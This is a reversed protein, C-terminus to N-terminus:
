VSRSALGESGHRGDDKIAKRNFTRVPGNPVLVGRVDQEGLELVCPLPTRFDSLIQAFLEFALCRVVGDSGKTSRVIPGVEILCVDLRGRIRGLLDFSAFPRTNGLAM